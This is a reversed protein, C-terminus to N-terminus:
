IFREVARKSRPKKNLQISRLKWYIDEAEQVYGPPPRKPNTRRAQLEAFQLCLEAHQRKCQFYPLLLTLLHVAQRHIVRLRYYPLRRGHRFCHVVKADPLLSNLYDLAQRETMAIEVIVRYSPTKFKSCRTPVQRYITIHAEGDFLGAIYAAQENTLTFSTNRQWCQRCLGTHGRIDITKGCGICPRM